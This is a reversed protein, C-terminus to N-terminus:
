IVGGGKRWPEFPDRGLQPQPGGKRWPERFDPLGWDPSHGAGRTELEKFVSLGWEARRVGRTRLSTQLGLSVRWHQRSSMQVRGWLEQSASLSILIWNRFGAGPHLVELETLVGTSSDMITETGQTLNQGPPMEIEGQVELRNGVDGSMGREPCGCLAPEVCELATHECEVCEVKGTYQGVAECELTVNEVALHTCVCM